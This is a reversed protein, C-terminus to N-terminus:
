AFAITALAEAAQPLTQTMSEVMSAYLRAVPMAGTSEGLVVLATVAGAIGLAAIPRRTGFLVLAAAAGLPLLLVMTYGSVAIGSFGLLGLGALLAIAFASAR